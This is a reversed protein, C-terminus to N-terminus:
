FCSHTQAKIRAQCTKLVAKSFCSTTVPCAKSSMRAAKCVATPSLILTCIPLGSPISRIQSPHCSCAPSQNYHFLYLTGSNLHKSPLVWIARYLNSILTLFGQTVKTYVTSLTSRDDSSIPFVPNSRSPHPTLLDSNM